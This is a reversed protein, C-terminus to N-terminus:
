WTLIMGFEPTLRWKPGKVWTSSGCPHHAAAWLGSNRASDTPPNRQSAHHRETQIWLSGTVHPGLCGGPVTLYMGWIVVAVARVTSFLLPRGLSSARRHWLACKHPVQMDIGDVNRVCTMLRKFTKVFLQKINTNEDWNSCLLELRLAGASRPGWEVTSCATSPRDSTRSQEQWSVVRLSATEMRLSIRLRKAAM